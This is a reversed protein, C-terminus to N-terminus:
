TKKRVEPSHPMESTQEEMEKKVNLLKQQSSSEFGSQQAPVDVMTALWAEEEKKVLSTQFM